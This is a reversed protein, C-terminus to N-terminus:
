AQGFPNEDTIRIEKRVHRIDEELNTFIQLRPTTILPGWGTRTRSYVSELLLQWAEAARLDTTGYRRQAYRGIWDPLDVISQDWAKEYIFERSM